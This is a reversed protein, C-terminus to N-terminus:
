GDSGDGNGHDTGRYPRFVIEPEDANSLPRRRLRAALTVQREIARRVQERQADDLRENFRAEIAALRPAVAADPGQDTSDPTTAVRSSAGDSEEISRNQDTM